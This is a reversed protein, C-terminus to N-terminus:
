WNHRIRDLERQRAVDKKKKVSFGHIAHIILYYVFTVDVYITFILDNRSIDGFFHCIGTLIMICIMAVIESAAEKYYAAFATPVIISTGHRTSSLWIYIKRYTRYFGNISIVFTTALCIDSFIRLFIGHTLNIRAIENDVFIIYTIFILQALKVFFTSLHCSFLVFDFNSKQKEIPNGQLDLIQM